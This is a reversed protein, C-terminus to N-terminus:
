LSRGELLRAVTDDAIRCGAGARMAVAAGVACAERMATKPDDGDLMGAVWRALFADGCGITDVVPVAFGSQATLGTTDMMMAGDGGFTVCVKELCYRDRLAALAAAPGGSVGLWAAIVSLESENFKVWDARALLPEVVERRDFPPRLNVDFVRLAANELLHLLTSRSVSHRAALSGFLVVARSAGAAEGSFGADIFDWAAPAVIDYSVNEPDSADVQVRGTMCEPDVQVLSTDLGRQDLYALLERGPADDGVRSLLQTDHGLSALRLAVNMPAGGPSRGKESIDWLAEGFCLVSRTV